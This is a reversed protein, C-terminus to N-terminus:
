AHVSGPGWQAELFALVAESEGNQIVKLPTSGFDSSPTVLWLRAAAPSGLHDTLLAMTRTLASQAITKLGATAERIERESPVTAPPSQDASAAKVKKTRRSTGAMTPKPQAPM